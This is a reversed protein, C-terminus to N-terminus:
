CAMLDISERLDDISSDLAIKVHFVVADGAQLPRVALQSFATLGSVMGVSAPDGTYRAVLPKSRDRRGDSHVVLGQFSITGATAGPIPRYSYVRNMCWATHSGRRVLFRVSATVTTEAGVVNQGTVDLHAGHRRADSWRADLLPPVAAGAVTTRSTAHAPVDAEAPAGYLLATATVLAFVSAAM